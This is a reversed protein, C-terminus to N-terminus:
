RIPAAALWGGFFGGEKKKSPWYVIQSVSQHDVANDGRAVNIGMGLGGRHRKEGDNRSLSGGSPRPGTV